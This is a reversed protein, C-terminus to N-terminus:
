GRTELRPQRDNSLHVLWYAVGVGVGGLINGLTIPLINGVLDLLSVNAGALMGVPLLYLNAICHEFGLAVFASIPFIIAIAKGEVSRAGASLWVALCVLVNCLMGRLFATGAGLKAKAEAIKIATAEVDGTQLVGSYHVALALLVGGAANATFVLSWNRLLARLSAKGGAYAVVMLNNGTFLEGGAIVLVILGLSFALGATLRGLGFGLSNDTLALTALAGGFGIYLGGLLGLCVLSRTPLTARQISVAEIRRAIEASTFADLSVPFPAPRHESERSSMTDRKDTGQTRM